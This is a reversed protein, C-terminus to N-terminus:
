RFFELVLDASEPKEEFILHGAGDVIRLTSKPIAEAWAKAKAVPVLRDGAGWLLLTPMTLRHLWRGLKPEGSPRDWAVRALSTTERYRQTLFDVDHQKPLYQLLLSPDELLYGPLDKDSITFIDPSEVGEVPLGAPAVLALKTIRRPQHAAIKAALWGGMSFGVLDFAGLELADFLDFYHLLYDNISDISADDESDGFGPHYPLIVKRSGAWRRAFEFGTFTAAGHLFVLPAGSGITNVVTKIGNITIEHREFAAESIAM